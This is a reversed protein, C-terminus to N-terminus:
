FLAFAGGRSRGSDCISLTTLSGPEGSRSGGVIGEGDSGVGDVVVRLWGALWVRGRALGALAGDNLVERGELHRGNL